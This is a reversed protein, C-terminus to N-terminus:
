PKGVVAKKDAEDGEHCEVSDFPNGMAELFLDKCEEHEEGCNPSQKDDEHSNFAGGEERLEINPERGEM